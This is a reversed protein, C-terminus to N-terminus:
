LSLWPAHKTVQQRLSNTHRHTLFGCNFNLQPEEQNESLQQRCVRRSGAALSLLWPLFDKYSLLSYSSSPLDLSPGLNLPCVERCTEGPAQTESSFGDPQEARITVPFLSQLILSCCIKFPDISNETEKMQVALFAENGFHVKLFECHCDGM